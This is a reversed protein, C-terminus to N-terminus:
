GDAEVSRALKALSARVAAVMVVKAVPWGIRGLRGLPLDIEESWVLRSRGSPLAFVEFVGTGRVVRGTHRVVCRWPPEWEVIVMTDTVGMPGLGTFAEIQAGLGTGDQSTARVTTALMWQSQRDWDVVAGWLVEAPVDVEVDVRV